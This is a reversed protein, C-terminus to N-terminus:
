DHAEKNINFVILSGTHCKSFAGKTTFAVEM